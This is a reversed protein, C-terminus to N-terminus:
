TTSSPLTPRTAEHQAVENALETVFADSRGQFHALALEIRFQVLAAQEDGYLIGSTKQRNSVQLATWSPSDLHEYGVLKSFDWERTQMPGQFVVRQDTITIVGTDIATPTETGPVFHGRTRGVRYRVGTKGIPFSFGQSRGQWSGPGRRSEVLAGGQIILFIREDRKAVLSLDPTEEPKTGEFTKAEALFGDLAGKVEDWQALAVQFQADMSREHREAKRRAWWGMTGKDLGEFSGNGEGNAALVRFASSDGLRRNPPASRCLM